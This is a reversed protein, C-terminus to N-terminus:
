QRIIKDGEELGSTVEIKGDSGKLGTQIEVEFINQNDKESVSVLNAFRSDDSDKGAVVRVYKKGDRSIINRSPIYLINDKEDTLIDLDATLGSLIREDSLDFELTVKYVTIGDVIRGAPDIHIVKATFITDDGYADLTVRASDGVSIKAIDAESINSEIQFKTRGILSVIVENSSITQGPKVDINAVVGAFPAVLRYKAIQAQILALSARAQELQSKAIEIDYGEGVINKQRGSLDAIQGLIVDIDINVKDIDAQLANREAALESQMSEMVSKTMLLVSRVVMILDDGSNVNPNAQFQDIQFKLGSNLGTFYWAGVRGFDGQGYIMNLVEGKQQALKVAPGNNGSFYKYQIDTFNIMADVSLKLAKSLSNATASANGDANNASALIQNLRSEAASLVAKERQEQALLESDDLGILLRGALVRDGGKVGVYAVRGGREFSLDISQASKVRGTISVEQLISGIQTVAFDGELDNGAFKFFWVSAAFAVILLLIFSKRRGKIGSWVRFLTYM